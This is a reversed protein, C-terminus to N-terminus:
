KIVKTRVELKKEPQYFTQGTITATVSGDTSVVSVKQVQIPRISKELIESFSQIQPYAGKVAIQFDLAIPTPVTGSQQASQAVEDDTGTISEISLGQSAALKELSSTLAPFDYKSPLADLIIKANDGDRDGAGSPSGGILNQSTSVFSQYSKVLDDRAAINQNLQKLTKKKATIVKNQYVMQSFLAKSAVLSFMVVFAAVAAIIVTRTNAKDIMARKTLGLEPVKMAM